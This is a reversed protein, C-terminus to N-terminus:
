GNFDEELREITNKLMTRARELAWQRYSKLPSDNAERDFMRKAKDVEDVYYSPVEGPTSSLIGTENKSLTFYIRERDKRSQLSVRKCLPQAILAWALTSNDYMSALCALHRLSDEDISPNKELYQEVFAAVHKGSPNIKVLYKPMWYLSIFSKEKLALQCFDDLDDSANEDFQCWKNIDFDHPMIDFQDYPKPKSELEIRSNILSVLQNVNLHFNAQNRLWELDYNGLLNGDLGYKSIMELIWAVPIDDKQWQYRLATIHTSQIFQFMCNNAEKPTAIMENLQAELKQKINEQNTPFFAGLLYFWEFSSFEKEHKFIIDLEEKHLKGINQPHVNSYLGFLIRSPKNTLELLKDLSNAVSSNKMKRDFFIRRWLFVSFNWALPNVDEHSQIISNAFSTLANLPNAKPDFLENCANALDTMRMNDAMDKKAGRTADLYQKAENFFDEIKAIETSRKFATVVKQTEPLLDEEPKFAFFKHVNWKSSTQSINDCKQALAKLEEDKGYELYWSWIKRAATTEEISLKVSSSQDLISVCRRLDNILLKRYDNRLNGTVTGHLVARHFEHHSKAIIGWLSNQVEPELNGQELKTLVIERTKSAYQWEEGDSTIAMRRFSMVLSSTWETIERIPNLLCNLLLSVFLLQASDTLQQNIAEYAPQTFINSNRSCCLLRKLLDHGGKGREITKKEGANQIAIHCRFEDIFRAAIVLESVHEAIQFLLWPLKNLLVTHEFTYAGWFDDEITESEKFNKRLAIIVDLASEPDASGIKELLEVIRYQQRISGDMAAGLTEKFIPELLSYTESDSLRNYSLYCFSQLILDAQPIEADILQKVIKKGDENVCYDESKELLWNSLIYERVILPQVAFLRKKIGWNRVVRAKALEMLMPRVEDKPVGNNELFQLISKQEDSLELNLTGWLALWRLMILGTGQKASGGLTNLCSNVYLEAIKDASTPLETLSRNKAFGSVLCLWGPVGGTLKYISHLWAENIDNGLYEKLLQKSLEEGFPELHLPVAFLRNNQFKKLVQTNESRCAYIVCWNRREVTALQEVVLNLLGSDEPNDIVVCTKQSGNLLKFWQSSKSMTAPLAWLVRWGKESLTLLSEYLLRSKGIGGQGVVPLIRKEASSEILEIIRQTEAERGLMARELSGDSISESNLLDYAEKVGVLIRNEGEFFVEQIEPYTFLIGELKEIDWYEAVLNEQQFKPTVKEQWKIHDNPNISFNAVLIWNKVSKWHKNNVHSHTQYKKIRELEELALKIAGDMDLSNRFKAQYVTLGDASRADQGSDKGPRGFLLTKPTKAFLLAHVLSEFTGGDQIIGWNLSTM